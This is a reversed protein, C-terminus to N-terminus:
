SDKEGKKFGNLWNEFFPRNAEDCLFETILKKMNEKEDTAGSDVGKLSSVGRSKLIASMVEKREDIRQWRQMKSSATKGILNGPIEAAATEWSIKKKTAKLVIADAYGRDDDKIPAKLTSTDQLKRWEEDTIARWEVNGSTLGVKGKGDDSEDSSSSRPEPSPTKAADGM